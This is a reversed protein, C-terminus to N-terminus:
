ECEEELKRKRKTHNGKFESWPVSSILSDGKQRRSGIHCTKSPVM